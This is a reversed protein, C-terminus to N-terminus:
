AYKKKFEAQAEVNVKAPVHGIKRPSFGLHHLFVAIRQPTLRIKTLEEVCFMAEKATAVPNNKFYEFLLDHHKELESEPQYFHVEKISEIGGTQYEKLYSTLTTSSIELIQCIESHPLKKSKLCLAEAKIRVRHHKNHHREHSLALIDSESFSINIM